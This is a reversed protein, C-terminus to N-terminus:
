LANPQRAAVHQALPPGASWRLDTFDGHSSQAIRRDRNLKIDYDVAASGQDRNRWGFATRRHCATGACGSQCRADMAGRCGSWQGRVGFSTRAAKEYLLVLNKGDPLYRATATASERHGLVKVIRGSKAPLTINRRARYVRCQRRGPSIHVDSLFTLPRKVWHDRLQDLDSVLTIPYARPRDKVDLSWLDAGCSYVIRGDSM